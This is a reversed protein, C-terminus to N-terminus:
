YRRLRKILANLISEMDEQNVIVRHIASMIPFIREDIDIMTGLSRIGYLGSTKKEFGEVVGRMVADHACNRDESDASFCTFMFDTLGSLGDFTHMNGGMKKGLLKMEKFMLNTIHFLSNDSKGGLNKEYYGDLLGIGLAYINKLAGGIQVGKTDGPEEAPRAFSYSTTFLYGIDKILSKDEAAIEYGTLKREILESPSVAGALVALRKRKVFYIEALDELVLGRKTGTFGKTINIVPCKTADLLSRFNRYSAEIDWPRVSQILLTSDYLDDLKSTFVINPPLRFVPFFDEFRQENFLQVKEDNPHYIYVLSDKNALVCALAVSMKTHALFGIRHAPSHKHEILRNSYEDEVEGLFLNRYAGHRHRHLNMGIISALGDTVYQKKNVGSPIKLQDMTEIIATDKTVEGVVVPKGIMLKGKAANFLFSSPPLIDDTGSLSVPIVIRDAVYHYVTDVFGTLKGTRSRTGEPFIAIIKGEKQLQRAQRYARQNIKTMLNAQAPNESMDRKSCVLLSDFMYLGLRTFDPEFALRGAIFVLNEALKRADGKERYLLNYIAPADLHSIHNSVLVVPVKGLLPLVPRINETGSVTFNSMLPELFEVMFDRISPNQQTYVGVEALADEVRFCEMVKPQPTVQSLKIFNILLERAKGPNLGFKIFGEINKFFEKQWPAQFNEEM